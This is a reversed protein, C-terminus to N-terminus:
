FRRGLRPWAKSQAPATAPEPKPARIPHPSNRFVIFDRPKSKGDWNALLRKAATNSPMKVRVLATDLDTFSIVDLGFPTPDIAVYRGGSTERAWWLDKAKIEDPSIQPM